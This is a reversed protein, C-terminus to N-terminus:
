GRLYEMSPGSKVGYQRGEPKIQRGPAPRVRGGIVVVKPPIGGQASKVHSSLAGIEATRTRRGRASRRM